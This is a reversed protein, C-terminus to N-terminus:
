RALVTRRVFSRVPTRLRIFYVGPPVSGPGGRADWSVTHRGPPTKGSALVAVERGQADMVTLRIEAECPLSYLIRMGSRIPNPWAGLLEFETLPAEEADLAGSWIVFEADSLDEGQNGAADHAVVRLLAQSTPPGTAVWVTSGENPLGTAIPEYPGLSGDRSVYLDVAVVAVNDQAVWRLTDTSGAALVEGGNPALVQVTPPQADAFSAQVALNRVMVVTLTDPSGTTDGSWGQFAFGAAATATLQVATGPLYAALDPNASVTGSGAVSTTLSYTFQATINRDAAMTLTIPNATGSTDGGWGVFSQDPLATAALTVGTGPDYVPQDPSRVVSGNGIATVNLTYTPIDGIAFDGFGTLGTAQTSTATRAGVTHVFWSPALYRRVVLRGADAGEDLDAPAFHFVADYQDFGLGANSISWYRNVTLTPNFPSSALNPHDGATSSVTLTGSSIVTGFALDVPAYTTGTGVEFTPAAAGAPVTKALNGWVFGGARSVAGGTELRLVHDGTVLVGQALALTDYVTLDSGLTVTGAGSRNVTLAGLRDAGPVFRLTGADGGGNVVVSSAAGGKLAGSANSGGVTGGITLAHGNLDLTDQTGSMDLANGTAGGACSVDALLRVAGGTKILKLYDFGLPGTASLTQTASGTFTVARGNTTLTGLDTLNGQLILNGASPNLALTGSTLTLDGPVNRDASPMSVTGSGAQIVVHRPVGSGVSAGSSWENGVALGTAYVLTASGGYIPAGSISGGPNVQLTGSLTLRDANQAMASAQFLGTVSCAANMSIGGAGLVNVSVPGNTVPWWAVEGVTRVGSTNNFILTGRTADYVYSGSGAPSAGQDLELAGQVTITGNNTFTVAGLALTATPVVTANGALTISAIGSLTQLGDGDFVVEQSARLTLAEGGNTLDGALRLTGTMSSSFTVGHNLTLDGRVTLPDGGAARYTAAGASRTLVLSGYTAGSAAIAYTAREPVDYEFVGTETDPATSLRPLIGNPDRRTAHLYRGGANIRVLGTTLSNTEIGNGSSAGSANHLTGGADILIDTTSDVGDGVRLGPNETNSSPLTLTIARGAAPTLALSAVTVTAAGGPLTVTYDGAVGSNDLLVTDEPGPVFGGAWNNPNSWSEGDGGGAAGIWIREPKLPFTATFSKARDMTLTVPNETGTADGTWGAFHYGAGAVATLQVATGYPYAPLDPSRIVAGTGVTTIALTYTDIQFNATVNTNATMVLALPNATSNVDGSWSVFHHGVAPTATLQVPTAYYYALRDPSRTVSGSGNVGADLTYENAEFVARVDKAGDMVVALPNASGSADGTWNAFHYGTAPVATLQVVAGPAYGPLDPVRGV